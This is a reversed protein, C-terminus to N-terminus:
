VPVCQLVSIRHCNIQTSSGHGLYLQQDSVFVKWVRHPGGPINACKRAVLLCPVQLVVTGQFLQLLYICRMTVYVGRHLYREAGLGYQSTSLYAQSWKPSCVVLVPAACKYPLRVGVDQLTIAAKGHLCIAFAPTKLLANYRPLHKEIEQTHVLYAEKSNAM